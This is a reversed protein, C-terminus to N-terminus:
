VMDPCLRERGDNCRRSLMRVNPYRIPNGCENKRGETEVKTPDEGRVDLHHAPQKKTGHLEGFWGYIGNNTRDKIQSAAKIKVGLCLHRLWEQSRYFSLSRSYIVKVLIMLLNPRPNLGQRRALSGTTTKLQPTDCETGTVAIRVGCRGKGDFQLRRKVM